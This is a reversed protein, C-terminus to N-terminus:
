CFPAFMLVYSRLITSLRHFEVFYQIAAVGAARKCRLPDFLFPHVPDQLGPPHRRRRHVLLRIVDGSYQCGNDTRIRM